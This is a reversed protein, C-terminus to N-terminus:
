PHSKRANWASVARFPFARRARETKVKPLELQGGCMGRTSRVSVDCRSQVLDTLAPPADPSQGLKCLMALERGELMGDLREWGLMELVPTVHERRSLGTVIRAGFNLAKQVRHRLTASCGGWVTLCHHVHPFVPAQILLKKTEFPIKHRLKSLGVLAHFCRRTVQSKSKAHCRRFLTLVLLKQM